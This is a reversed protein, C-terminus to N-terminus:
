KPLILPLQTSRRFIGLNHILSLLIVPDTAKAVFAKEQVADEGLNLVKEGVLSDTM